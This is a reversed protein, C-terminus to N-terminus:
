RDWSVQSGSGKKKKNKSYLTKAQQLLTIFEKQLLDDTGSASQALSIIESWGANKLFPSNRLMSGFMAVATSFKYCKDMEEFPKLEFRCEHNFHYDKEENPQRYQLHIDALKAGFLNRKADERNKDSPTIEFLAMMSYGSGIEGGEIVSLSDRLAGVKNDFGIL